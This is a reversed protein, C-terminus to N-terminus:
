LLNEPCKCCYKTGHQQTALFGADQRDSLLGV